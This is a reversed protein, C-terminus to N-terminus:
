AALNFFSLEDSVKVERKSSCLYYCPHRITTRDSKIKIRENRWDSTKSVSALLGPLHRGPIAHYDQRLLQLILAREACINIKTRM